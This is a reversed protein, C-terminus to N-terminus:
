TEEMIGRCSERDRARRRTKERKEEQRRSARRRKTVGRRIGAFGIPGGRDVRGRGGVGGGVGRRVAAEDRLSM